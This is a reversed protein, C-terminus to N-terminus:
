KIYIFWTALSVLSLITVITLVLTITEKRTKRALRLKKNQDYNRVKKMYDFILRDAVHSNHGAEKRLDDIVSFHDAKLFQGDAGIMVKGKKDFKPYEPLERAAKRIKSNKSM